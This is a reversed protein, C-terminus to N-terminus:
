NRSDSINPTLVPKSCAPWSAATVSFAVPAPVNSIASSYYWTAIQLDIHTQHPQPWTATVGGNANPYSAPLCKILTQLSAVIHNYTRTPTKPNELTEACAVL